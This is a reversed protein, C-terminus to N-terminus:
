ARLGGDRSQLVQRVLAGQQAHTIAHDVEVAVAEALHRSPDHEVDIVVEISGVALLFQAHEIGMVVLMAERWNHHEVAITAQNPGHQARCPPWAPTLDNHQQTAQDTTQTGVPRANLDQQATVTVVARRLHQTEAAVGPHVPHQAHRRRRGQAAM